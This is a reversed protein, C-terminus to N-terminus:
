NLIGKLWSYRKRTEFYDLNNQNAYAEKEAALHYYAKSGFKFLKFAWEIVYLLYFPVVGIELAQQFHISEHNVTTIGKKAHTGGEKYKERLIIFPWLSIGGISMFISISKLFRDSYIIVPKM